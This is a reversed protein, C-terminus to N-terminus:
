LAVPNVYEQYTCTCMYTHLSMYLSMVCMLALEGGGGMGVDGGGGVGVDGGGGVGVDGGGGMGEVM